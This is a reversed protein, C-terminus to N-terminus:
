KFADFITNLIAYSGFIMVLGVTAWIFINKGKQIRESNGASTMWMFGGYVFLLLAISGTLGLILKIANAMLDEPSNVNALPNPVNIAFSLAPITLLFLFTAFTITRNKM